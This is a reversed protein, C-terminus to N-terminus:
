EFIMGELAGSPKLDPLRRMRLANVLGYLAAAIPVILAIQLARPRADDNIRIIEDQIEEPQGQLLQELQTNSMLEADDELAEAVQEQEAPPLVDSDEAM